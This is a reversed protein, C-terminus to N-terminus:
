IYGTMVILDIDSRTLSPVRVNSGDQNVVYDPAEDLKMSM